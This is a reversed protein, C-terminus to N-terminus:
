EFTNVFYQIIGKFSDHITHFDPKEHGVYMLLFVAQEGKKNLINYLEHKNLRYVERIIRKARNRDVARRSYKRSVSIVLRGPYKGEFPFKKWAFLLPYIVKKNHNEQSFLLEIVKKHTLRESKKFTYQRINM